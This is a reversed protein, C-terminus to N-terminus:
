LCSSVRCTGFLAQCESIQNEDTWTMGANCCGSVCYRGKIENSILWFIQTLLDFTRIGASALSKVRSIERLSGRAKFLNIFAENMEIVVFVDVVVLM